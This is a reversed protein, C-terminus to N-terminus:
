RYRHKSLSSRHANWRDSEVVSNGDGLEAEASPLNRGVLGLLGDAGGQLCTEAMDVGCGDVAVLLTHATCEGVGAQIALVKEDGGLQPIAGMMGVISALGDLGTQGLQAEVVDVEVEDM